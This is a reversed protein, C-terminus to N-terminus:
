QSAAALHKEKAMPGKEASMGELNEPVHCSTNRHLIKGGESREPHSSRGIRVACEGALLAYPRVTQQWDVYTYM